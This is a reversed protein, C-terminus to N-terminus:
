KRKVPRVKYGANRLLVILGKDGCLHGAGVAFFCSYRNMNLRMRELMVLNRKDFMAQNFDLSMTTDEKLLLDLANLDEKLYFQLMRELLKKEEDIHDIQEVLLKAQEPLNVMDMLAMQEQYTELGGVLKRKKLAYNQLYMDLPKKEESKFHHESIMMSTYIPKMKNILLAYIGIHKKCYEKVKIYDSASLLSELTTDGHMVISAGLKKIEEKDQLDLEGFLASSHNIAYYTSDGLNFVRKDRIHITGFLYSTDTLGNGSIEWLLSKGQSFVDLSSIIILLLACYKKLKRM